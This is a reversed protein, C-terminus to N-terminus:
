NNILEKIKIKFKEWQQNGLLPNGVIQITNNKDILYTHLMSNNSIINNAIFEYTDDFYVPYDFNYKILLENVPQNEKHTSIIFIFQVNLDKHTECANLLKKWRPLEKLSCATCKENLFHVIIKPQNSFSVTTDRNLYKWKEQRPLIMTAGQLEKPSVRHYKPTQGYGNIFFSISIFFLIYHKM